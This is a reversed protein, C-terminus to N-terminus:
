KTFGIVRGFFGASHLALLTQFSRVVATKFDPNRGRMKVQLGTNAYISFQPLKGNQPEAPLTTTL